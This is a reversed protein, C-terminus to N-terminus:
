MQLLVFVPIPLTPQMKKKQRMRSRAPSGQMKTWRVHQFVAPKEKREREEEEEEEEVVVIYGPCYAPRNAAVGFNEEEEVKAEDVSSAPSPCAYLYVPLPSM